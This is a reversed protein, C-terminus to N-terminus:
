VNIFNKDKSLQDMFGTVKRSSKEGNALAFMITVTSIGTIKVKGKM